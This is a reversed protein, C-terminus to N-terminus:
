RLSSASSALGNFPHELMCFVCAKQQKIIAKPKSKQWLQRQISKISEKATVRIQEVCHTLRALVPLIRDDGGM